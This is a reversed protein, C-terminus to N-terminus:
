AVVLTDFALPFMRESALSPVPKLEEDPPLQYREEDVDFYSREPPDPPDALAGPAFLTMMLFTVGIRTRMGNDEKRSSKM